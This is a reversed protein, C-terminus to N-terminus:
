EGRGFDADDDSEVDEDAAVALPIEDSEPSQECTGPQAGYLSRRSMETPAISTRASTLGPTPAEFDEVTDAPAIIRVPGLVQRDGRHQYRFRSIAMVAAGAVALVALLAGLLIIWWEGGSRSAAAARPASGVHGGRPRVVWDFQLSWTVDCAAGGQLASTCLIDLNFRPLADDPANDDHFLAQDFVADREVASLSTYGGGHRGLTVARQLATAGVQLTVLLVAQPTNLRVAMHRVVLQLRESADTATTTVLGMSDIVAVHSLPGGGTCTTNPACLVCVGQAGALSAAVCVPRPQSPACLDECPVTQGTAPFCSIAAVLVTALRM